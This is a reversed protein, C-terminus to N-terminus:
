RSLRSWITIIYRNHNHIDWSGGMGRVCNVAHIHIAGFSEMELYSGVTTERPAYRSYLMFHTHTNSESGARQEAAKPNYIGYDHM